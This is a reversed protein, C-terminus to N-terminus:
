FKRETPPPRIAPPDYRVPTRPYLRVRRARPGPDAFVARFHRSHPPPNGPCRPSAHMPLRDRWHRKGFVKEFSNGMRFLIRARAASAAEIPEGRATCACLLTVTPRAGTTTSLTGVM